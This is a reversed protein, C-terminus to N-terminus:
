PSKFLGAKTITGTTASGQTQNDVQWTVATNGSGSVTASFQLAQGAVLQAYNPSISVTVAARATGMVCFMLLVARVITKM